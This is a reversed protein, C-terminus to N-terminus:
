LLAIGHLILTVPVVHTRPVIYIIRRDGTYGVQAGRSFMLYSIRKLLSEVSRTRTQPQRSVEVLVVVASCM